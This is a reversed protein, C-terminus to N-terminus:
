ASEPGETVGARPVFSDEGYLAFKLWRMGLKMLEVEDSAAKQIEESSIDFVKLFKTNFVFERFRELNYSVMHFMGLKQENLERVRRSKNTVIEMWPRNMENYLRAGQDQIWEEVTWERQELFGLCHAEQVFFYFEGEKMGSADSSAARGWPYLRCAGPRDEYITCGQPSVFPCQRRVDDRMKLCVLPFMSERREDPATYQDMFEGASLQLRKKMRLIDYPTLILQLDACCATFCSIGRHCFFKLREGTLIKIEEQRKDALRFTDQVPIVRARGEVRKAERWSTRECRSRRERM